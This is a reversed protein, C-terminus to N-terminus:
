RAGERWFTRQLSLERMFDILFGALEWTQDMPSGAAASNVTENAQMESSPWFAGVVFAGAFAAGFAAVFAGAAVREVSGRRRSTKSSPLSPWPMSCEVWFALARKTGANARSPM